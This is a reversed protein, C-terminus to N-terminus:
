PSLSYSLSRDLHTPFLLTPNINTNSCPPFAFSIRALLGGTGFTLWDCSFTHFRPISPTSHPTFHGLITCFTADYNVECCLPQLQWALSSNSVACAGVVRKALASAEGDM